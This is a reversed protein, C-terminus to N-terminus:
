SEAALSATKYQKQGSNTIPTSEYNETSKNNVSKAVLLPTTSFANTMKKHNKLDALFMQQTVGMGGEFLKKSVM